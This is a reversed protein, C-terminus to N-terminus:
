KGGTTMEKLVGLMADVQRPWLWNRRVDEAAEVGLTRRLLPDQVLRLLAQALSPVDRPPFLLATREHELIEAPGGVQSAAIALGYLMGELLVMGFPEYWSPVALIDAVRYWNELDQPQLWGTFRIQNRYAALGQPLWAREAEAATQWGTGGVLVFRTTPAVELVLPIADLFERLGKRKVFRGCFLVLPAYSHRRRTWAWSPSVIDDIGNGIVRVRDLASPYYAALLDRESGSLVLLRDAAEIIEEQASPNWHDGIEYEARDLSHIHYLIPIGALDRIAKAVTWLSASHLHLVDPKWRIASQIGSESLSQPSAHFFKVRQHINPM